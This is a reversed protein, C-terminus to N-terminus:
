LEECLEVVVGSCFVDSRSCGYNQLLVGTTNEHQKLRSDCGNQGQDFPLILGLAGTGKINTSVNLKHNPKANVESEIFLCSLALCDWGPYIYCLGCSQSVVM